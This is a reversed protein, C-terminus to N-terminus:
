SNAQTAVKVIDAGKKVAEQLVGELIATEPTDTLNHSSVIVLKKNKKALDIVKSIIPSRLEIDIADVLPIVAQFIKLKKDDSINSKGGESEANRVTLILAPGIDKRERIDNVIYEIDLDAFQDVRLELVDVHLSKITEKTVKDKIAVAIKPIGNLSTNGLKIMINLFGFRAM